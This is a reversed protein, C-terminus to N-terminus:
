ISCKGRVNCTNRILIDIEGNKLKELIETKKKKTVGSILLECKINFKNLTKEFNVLHQSALIATPALIAVQYGSKVAKYAAIMAVVTKGSGVDGQLLRNMSKDSEMNNDIEELVRLQAKTLNFPLSNIVDSMHVNSDFKIGKHETMNKNKLQFLALQTSLLEEFVLRNRAKKFESFDSPFHIKETAGNIDQLKYKELLYQPLTERLGGEKKVIELGNEIIKRITNQTLSFTLPYIPIIKGTNNKKEIEDFVPSTMEIRGYKNSIKGYFRYKKGIEFKNKLYSQNFWTITATATEDQVKLRQMTRKNKIRTDVLRSTAVVEVTAEEGDFCEYLNKPKSRDQYDRPYYTILDKLTFIGLKNLLQVRNPGVGKVYKVDRELDVM